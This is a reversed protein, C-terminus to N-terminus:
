EAFSYSFSIGVGAKGQESAYRGFVNLHCTKYDNLGPIEKAFDHGAAIYPEVGAGNTPWPAVAGVQLAVIQKPDSWVPLSAGAISQRLVADYGVLAETSKLNLNVTGFYPVQWQLQDASAPKVYLFGLTFIVAFGKILKKM